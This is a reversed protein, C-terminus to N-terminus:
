TGYRPWTNGCLRRCTCYAVASSRLIALSRLSSGSVSNRKVISRFSPFAYKKHITRYIFGVAERM